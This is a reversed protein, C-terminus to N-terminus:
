VNGTSYLYYNKELSAVFKGNKSRLFCYFEGVTCESVSIGTDSCSYEIWIQSIQPLGIMLIQAFIKEAFHM